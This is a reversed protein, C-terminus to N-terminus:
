GATALGKARREMATALAVDYSTIGGSDHTWLTVDVRNYVNSWNPHHNLKEAEIAVAAMFGVATVFDDFRYERHLKGDDISWGPLSALASEVEASPLLAYSLKM